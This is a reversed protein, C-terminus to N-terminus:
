CSSVLCNVFSDPQQILVKAQPPSVTVAMKWILKAKHRKRDPGVASLSTSRRDSGRASCFLSSCISLMTTWGQFLLYWNLGIFVCRYVFLVRERLGWVWDNIGRTCCLTSLALTLHDLSINRSVNRRFMGLDVPLKKSLQM